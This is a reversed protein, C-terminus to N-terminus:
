IESAFYFRGSSYYYYLPKKGMRDRALLLKKKKTDWIAFAFMGRLKKVFGGGHEEYLHVLVETDSRTYFQHGKSEMEKRLQMYNYIEGNFVTWVTEDENHVPQKGGSRDIISLRRVGLCVNKDVFIGQDDPGRHEIIKCMKGILNRDEFGVFGTIGCM